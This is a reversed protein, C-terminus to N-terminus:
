NIVSDVVYSAQMALKATETRVFEMDRYIHKKFLRPYKKGELEWDYPILDFPHGCYFGIWFENPNPSPDFPNLGTWAVHGHVDINELEAPDANFWPHSKNVIIYGMWYKLIRQRILRYPIGYVTSEEYSPEHKWKEEM